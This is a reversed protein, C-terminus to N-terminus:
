PQNQNEKASQDVQAKRKSAKEKDRRRGDFTEKDHHEVKAEFEDIM